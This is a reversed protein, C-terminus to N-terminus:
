LIKKKCPIFSFLPVELHLLLNSFTTGENFTGENFTVLHLLQTYFLLSSGRLTAILKSFTTGENFTVMNSCKSAGREKKISLQSM